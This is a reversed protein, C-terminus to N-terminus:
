IYYHIFKLQLVHTQITATEALWIITLHHSATLAALAIVRVARVDLHAIDHQLLAPAAQVARHALAAALRGVLTAQKQAVVAVDAVVDVAEIRRKVLHGFAIPLAFPAHPTVLAVGFRRAADCKLPLVVVGLTGEAM